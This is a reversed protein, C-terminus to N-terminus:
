QYFANYNLSDTNDCGDDFNKDEPPDELVEPGVPDIFSGIDEM